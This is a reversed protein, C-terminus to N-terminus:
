YELNHKSAINKVEPFMGILWDLDLNKEYGFGNTTYCQYKNRETDVKLIVSMKAKSGNTFTGDMRNTWVTKYNPKRFLNKFLKM